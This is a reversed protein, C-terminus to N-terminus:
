SLIILILNLFLSILMLYINLLLGKILVGGLVIMSIVVVLLKLWDFGCLVLVRLGVVTMYSVVLKEEFAALVLM